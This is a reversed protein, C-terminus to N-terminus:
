AVTPVGLLAPLSAFAPLGAVAPVSVVFIVGAVASTGAVEPPSKPIDVAGLVDAVAVSGQIDVISHL